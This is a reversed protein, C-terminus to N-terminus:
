EIFINSYEVLWYPKTDYLIQRSKFLESELFIHFYTQVSLSLSIVDVSSLRSLLNFHLQFIQKTIFILHNYM